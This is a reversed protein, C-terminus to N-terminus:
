CLSAHTVSHTQLELQNAFIEDCDNCKVPKKESHSLIHNELDSQSNFCEGCDSCFFETETFDVKSVFIESCTQTKDEIEEVSDSLEDHDNKATAECEKCTTFRKKGSNSPDPFGVVTTLM